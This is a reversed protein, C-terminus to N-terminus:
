CFGVNRYKGYTQITFRCRESLKRIGLVACPQDEGFLWENGNEAQRQNPNNGHIM